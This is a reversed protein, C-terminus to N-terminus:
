RLRKDILSKGINVITSGLLWSLAMNKSFNRVTKNAM